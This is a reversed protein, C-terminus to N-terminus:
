RAEILSSYNAKTQSGEKSNELVAKDSISMSMQLLAQGLQINGALSQALSAGIRYSLAEIFQPDYVNPDTVKYTFECWALELNTAISKTKTDPSLMLKHDVPRPDSLSTENFIKRIKLCRNPETYLFNWGPVEEDLPALQEIATAFNWASGRLVSDRLPEYVLKCKRASESAEDLSTISKAGIHNLALNCIEVISSM